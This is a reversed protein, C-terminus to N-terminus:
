LHFALASVVEGGFGGDEWFPEINYLLVCASISFILLLTLIEGFSPWSLYM